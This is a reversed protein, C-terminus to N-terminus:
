AAGRLGRAAIFSYQPCLDLAASAVVLEATGVAIPRAGGSGYRLVEAVEASFSAGRDFGGCIDGVLWLLFSEPGVVGARSVDAVYQAAGGQTDAEAEGVCLLALALAAAISLAALLARALARTIMKHRM